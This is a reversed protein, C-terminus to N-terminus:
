ATCPGGDGCTSNYATPMDPIQGCGTEAQYREMATAQGLAADLIDQHAGKSRAVDVWLRVATPAALDKGRILFVPEDEPIIGRPDQIPAYDDRAHKM